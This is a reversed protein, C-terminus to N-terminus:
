SAGGTPLIRSELFRCLNEADDSGIRLVGGKLHVVVCSRGWLNWVWGGRISMHIGWGDLLLTRGTEVRAIDVYSVTRRFLPIPGFGISLREGLDKVRLHHFSAALLLVLIGIWPFFYPIMPDSRGNWAVFFMVMALAYLVLCMPARQIHDYGPPSKIMPYAEEPANGHNM